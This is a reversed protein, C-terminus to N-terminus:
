YCTHTHHSIGCSNISLHKLSKNPYPIHLKRCIRRLVVFYLPNIVHIKQYISELFYTSYPAICYHIIPIVKYSQSSSNLEYLSCSTVTHSERTDILVIYGKTTFVSIHDHMYSITMCLDSTPAQIYQARREIHEFSVCSCHPKVQSNNILEILITARVAIPM